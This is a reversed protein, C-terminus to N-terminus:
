WGSTTTARSLKLLTCRALACEGTGSKLQCATSQAAPSKEPWYMLLSDTLGATSRNLWLLTQIKRRRNRVWLEFYGAEKKKDNWTLLEPTGVDRSSSIRASIWQVFGARRKWDAMKFMRAHALLPAKTRACAALFCVIAVASFSLKGNLLSWSNSNFSPFLKLVLGPGFFAKWVILHSHVVSSRINPPDDFGRSYKSHANELIDWDNHTTVQM